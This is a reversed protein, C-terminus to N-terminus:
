VAQALGAGRHGMYNTKQNTLSITLGLVIGLKIYFFKKFFFLSCHYLKTGHTTAQSWQKSTM